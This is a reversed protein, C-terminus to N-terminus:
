WLREFNHHIKRTIATSVYSCHHSGASTAGAAFGAAVIGAILQIDNVM